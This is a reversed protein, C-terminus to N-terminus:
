NKEKLLTNYAHQISNQAYYILIIYLLYLVTNGDLLRCEGLVTVYM